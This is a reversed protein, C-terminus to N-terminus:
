VLWQKLFTYVFKIKFYRAIDKTGEEDYLLGQKSMGRVASESGAKCVAQTGDGSEVM